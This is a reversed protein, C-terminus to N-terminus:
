GRKQSTERGMYYSPFMQQASLNVTMNALAAKDKIEGTNFPVFHFQVQQGQARTGRKVIREAGEKTSTHMKHQRIDGPSMEMVWVQAVGQNGLRAMGATLAGMEACPAAKDFETRGEVSYRFSGDDLQIVVCRITQFHDELTKQLLNTNQFKSDSLDIGEKTKMLRLRDAFARQIEKVMFHNIETPDTHGQGDSAADLEAVSDRQKLANEVSKLAAQVARKGDELWETPLDLPMTLMRVLDPADPKYGPWHSLMEQARDEPLHAGRKLLETLGKAQAQYQAADIKHISRYAALTSINTKWVTGAEVEGIISAKDNVTATPTPSMLPLMYMPATKSVMVNRLMDTCNGCPCMPRAVGDKERGGVLYLAVLKPERPQFKDTDLGKKSQERIQEYVDSQTMNIVMNQEACQRFYSSSLRSTSTSIFIEGKDSVGLSAMRMDGEEPKAISRVRFKQLIKHFLQLKQSETLAKQWDLSPPNCDVEVTTKKVTFVIEPPPGDGPTSAFGTVHYTLLGKEHDEIDRIEFM